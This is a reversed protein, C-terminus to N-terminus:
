PHLTWSPDLSGTLFLEQAKRAKNYVREVKLSTTLGLTKIEKELQTQSTYTDYCGDDRRKPNHMPEDTVYSIDMGIARGCRFAALVMPLWHAQHCLVAQSIVLEAPVIQGAALMDMFNGQVAHVNPHSNDFTIPGNSIDIGLYNKGNWGRKVLEKCFHGYGCGIEIITSAKLCATLLRETIKEGERTKWMWDWFTTPQKQWVEGYEGM